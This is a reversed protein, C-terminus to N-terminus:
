FISVIGSSWRVIYCCGRHPSDGYLVKFLNDQFDRSFRGRLIRKAEDVLFLLQLDLQGTAGRLAAIRAEIRELGRGARDFSASSGSRFGRISAECEEKARQAMLLFFEDPGADYPLRMLNVYIPLRCQGITRVSVMETALDACIRRLITTKGAQRGGFLLVCGSRLLSDVVARIQVERGICLPPPDRLTASGAATGFMIRRLIRGLRRLPPESLM